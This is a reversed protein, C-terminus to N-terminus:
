YLRSGPFQLRLGIESRGQRGIPHGCGGEVDHPPHMQGETGPLGGHMLSGHARDRVAVYTVSEDSGSDAPLAPSNRFPTTEASRETACHCRPAVRHCIVLMTRGLSANVMTLNFSSGHCTPGCDALGGGEVYLWPLEGRPSQPDPM